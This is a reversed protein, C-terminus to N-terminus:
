RLRLADLLEALATSTSACLHPTAHKGYSNASVSIREYKGDSTQGQVSDSSCYTRSNGTSEYVQHGAVFKPTEGEPTKAVAIEYDVYFSFGSRSIVCGNSVGDPAATGGFGPLTRIRTARLAACFDVAALSPDALALHPVPGAAIASTLSHVVADAAGCHGAKDGSGFTNFAYITLTVGPARIERPCNGAADPQYPYVNVRLGSEHRVTHKGNAQTNAPSGYVGVSFQNEGHQKMHVSCGPPVIVDNYEPTYGFGELASLDIAACLDATPPDGIATSV